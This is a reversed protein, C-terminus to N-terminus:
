GQFPAVTMAPFSTFSFGRSRSPWPWEGHRGKMAEFFFFFLIFRSPGSEGLANSQATVHRGKLGFPARGGARRVVDVMISIVTRKRPAPTLPFRSCCVRFESRPARLESHPTFPGLFARLASRDAIQRTRERRGKTGGDRRAKSSETM